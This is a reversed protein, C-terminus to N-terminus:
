LAARDAKGTRGVPIESVLFIRRPIKHFALRTAAFRTLQQATVAGAHRPIIATAIEEGLRHDHTAFTVAQAVDPHGSFVDDIEGPAVKEGGRNIFESVRGTLFLFGDEDLYGRDGTRFWGDTFAAENLAADKYYGPTVNPGRVVIHGTENPGLRAGGDDWIEIEPGASVGV